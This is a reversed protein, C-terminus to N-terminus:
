EVMWSELVSLVKRAGVEMWTGVNLSFGDIADGVTSEESELNRSLQESWPLEKSAVNEGLVKLDVQGKDSQLVLAQPDDTGVLSNIGKEAASIGFLVLVALIALLVGYVATQEIAQRM